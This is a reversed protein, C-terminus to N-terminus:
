DDAYVPVIFPPYYNIDNNRTRTFSFYLYIKSLFHIAFGLQDCIFNFEVFGVMVMM